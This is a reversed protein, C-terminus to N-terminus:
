HGKGSKNKTRDAIRYTAGLNSMVMWTLSAQDGLVARRRKMAEEFLPIAKEDQGVDRFTAALNFIASVTDLHDDGLKARLGALAKEYVPIAEEFRNASSYTYAM